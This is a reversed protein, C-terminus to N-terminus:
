SLSKFVVSHVALCLCMLLSSAYTKEVSFGYLFGWEGWGEKFQVSKMPGTQGQCGELAPALSARSKSCRDSQCWDDTQSRDVCGKGTRPGEFHEWSTETDEAPSQNQGEVERSCREMLPPDMRTCHTPGNKRDKAPNLSLLFVCCLLLCAFWSMNKQLIILTKGVELVAHLSCIKWKWTSFKDRMM